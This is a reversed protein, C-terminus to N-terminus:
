SMSEPIAITLFQPTVVPVVVITFLLGISAIM